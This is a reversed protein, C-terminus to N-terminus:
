AAGQVSAPNVQAAAEAEARQPGTSLAAAKQGGRSNSAFTQGTGGQGSGPRQLAVSPQAGIVPLDSKGMRNQNRLRIVAQLEKNGSQNALRTQAAMVVAPDSWLQDELIDARFSTLDDEGLAKALRKLSSGGTARLSNELDIMALNPETPLDVTLAYQGDGVWEPDFTQPVIGERNQKESGVPREKTTQIPWRVKWRDYYAKLIRLLAEGVFVTADCAGERIHRKAVDSIASQVVATRANPASGPAAADQAMARDLMQMDAALDRWADQGVSAQQAPVIRGTTPEVEGVGPVKPRRLEGEDDLIAELGGETDAFHSDIEQYHGTFANTQTAANIATKKGEIAKIRTEYTSLYPHWYHAPDDDETHLGGFYGWLPGELGCVTGDTKEVKTEEYLDILEVSNPDDPNGSTDSWTATGGICSAIVPRKRGEDDVCTLYATYRYFQGNQGVESNLVRMNSGDANYAQPILKRDGMGKWGYRDHLLEQVTYLTREVLGVCEWRDRDASRVLIPACDLAPIIRINAARKDILYRQVAEDHADESQKRDGTDYKPNIKKSGDDNLRVYRGRRDGDLKEYRKRDEAPLNKYARETLMEFFDPAGDMDRFAPVVAVGYRGDETGKGIFAQYPVDRKFSENMYAKCEAAADQDTDRFGLAARQYRPEVAGARAVMDRDLTIRHELLERVWSAAEPNNRAWKANIQVRSSEESRRLARIRLIEDYAPQLPTATTRFLRILMGPTVPEGNYEYPAIPPDVPEPIAPNRESDTGYRRRKEAM